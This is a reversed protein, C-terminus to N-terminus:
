LEDNTNDADIQIKWIMSLEDGGEIIYKKDTETPLYVVDGGNLIEDVVVASTARETVKVHANGTVCAVLTDFKKNISLESSSFPQAVLFDASALPVKVIGELEEIKPKIDDLEEISNLSVLGKGVGLATYLGSPTQLSEGPEIEDSVCAAGEPTFVTVDAEDLIIGANDIIWAMWSEESPQVDLLELHLGRLVTQSGKQCLGFIRSNREKVRDEEFYGWSGQSCIRATDRAKKKKLRPEDVDGSEYHPFGISWIVSQNDDGGVGRHYYTAPIYVADGPSMVVDVVTPSGLETGAVQFRKSGEVCYVLVDLYDCHWGWSGSNPQAVYFEVDIFETDFVASLSELKPILAPMEDVFVLEVASHETNLADLLDEATGLRMTTVKLGEADTDWHERGKTPYLVKAKTKGKSYKLIDEVNNRFWETWSSSNEPPESLPQFNVAKLSGPPANADCLQQFQKMITDDAAGACNIQLLLLSLLMMMLGVYTLTMSTARAARKKRKQQRRSWM